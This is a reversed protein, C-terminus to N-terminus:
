RIRSGSHWFSVQLHGHNKVKGISGLAFGLTVTLMQRYVVQMSVRSVLLIRVSLRAAKCIALSANTEHSLESFIRRASLLLILVLPSM